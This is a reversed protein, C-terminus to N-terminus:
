SSRARTWVGSSSSDSPCGCVRAWTKATSEESTGTSSTIVVTRSAQPAVSPAARSDSRVWAGARLRSPPKWWAPGPASPPKQGTFSTATATAARRASPYVPCTTTSSRSAWGGSPRAAQRAM